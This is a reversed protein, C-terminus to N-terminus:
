EAHTLAELAEDLTITEVAPVAGFLDVQGAPAYVADGTHMAWEGLVRGAIESAHIPSTAEVRLIRGALPGATIRINYPHTM